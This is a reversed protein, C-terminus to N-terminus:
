DTVAHLIARELEALYDPDTVRKGDRDRLYFSDVLEEGLTQVKASRIDLDLEAIAETIRFLMGIADRCHVEVVTAATSTDLDFQVMPPVTPTHTGTSTPRRYRRARESLRARLALRGELALGVDRIVGDWPIVPGISSEVKFVEVAMGEDNSFARSQLVDLGHLALVGTVRSFLGPRDEAIVTLRNGEADIDLNHGAMRELLEITPFVESTVDQPSGGGLVHAVRSVLQAVLDAKWSNWAAPGTAISDAETLAHLLRLMELSGVQSAVRHITEDDDLDRRTAVDPLLLHLRVLEELVSVDEDPYGMREGITGVLEVGVATHDGPYGKGIDHLLTGVVLLDPRDVQDALSAAEVAAVCLHRDVTYTHYANRQPRCRVAEWEPVFRVWLGKRDLSEIVAIAPEGALLLSAFLARAEDNWEFPVPGAEGAIRWLSTREFHANLQAALVATRLPLLPDGSLDAQQTLAVEGERLVIGPGIPKDRRLRISSPGKLSSDIRYWVEDSTWAIDRAAGSLARMLTDASGYGLYEAVVEQDQLALQDGSRNTTRHLEARAELITEYAAGLMDDDGELMVTEAWEAWRIAHVDRLGGRGEKLDPELRFAVEGVRAHRDKVSRSLETLFRKARKHWLGLSKAALEDALATDGAVFRTSLLSTATELDDSALTIAEKVTRVAHGLKVGEDWIPYWIKEAISGIDRRGTHVLVIDIDSKPSLESRGYGGVAVLACGSPDGAEAFLEAIWQDARKSYARCLEVGSISRDAVLDARGLPPVM